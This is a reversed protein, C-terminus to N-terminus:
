ITNKKIARIIRYIVPSFVANISFEIIFNIGILGFITYYFINSEGSWIFLTDKFFTFMAIVFIGTNVIPATVAALITVIYRNKIMKSNGIIGAIYGAAAGKVICVAITFFPSSQFLINGGGDIGIISAIVTVTGFVGGLIAGFKPGFMVAGLVVPILVLSLNFTGIKIVYSLSQLVVVIGSFGGLMAINLSAEKSKTM